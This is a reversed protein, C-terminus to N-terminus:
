FKGRRAIKNTFFPNNGNATSFMVIKGKGTKIRKNLAVMIRKFVKDSILPYEFAFEDDIRRM